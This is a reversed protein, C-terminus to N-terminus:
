PHVRGERNKVDEAFMEIACQMALAKRRGEDTLYLMVSRQDRSLFRREVLGDKELSSISMSVSTKSLGTSRTISTPPAGSLDATLLRLMIVQPARALGSAHLHHLPSM